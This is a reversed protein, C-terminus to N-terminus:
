SILGEDAFSFFQNDGIIIHDLVKIQMLESAAILDKTIKKDDISPKPNGSPHNHIFIMSVASHKLASKVIDRPYISSKNITGEFLDEIEIIRNQNDLFIVKFLENKLDRMSHYLYNFIDESSKCLLKKQLNEKLVKRAVEMVLKIGFINKPGIGKIEQLEEPSAELIRRLTKFKKMANKAFEKCDKRPTALTLLLEVIEYDHFADIGAKLFKDRLRKRHGESKNKEYKKRVNNM